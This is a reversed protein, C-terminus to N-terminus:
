LFRIRMYNCTKGFSEGLPPIALLFVQFFFGDELKDSQRKECQRPSRLFIIHHIVLDIVGVENKHM